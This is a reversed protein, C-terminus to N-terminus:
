KALASLEKLIKVMNPDEASVYGVSCSNIELIGNYEEAFVLYIGDEKKFDVGCNGGNGKFSFFEIEKKTGNKFDRVVSFKTTMEEMGSTGTGKSVSDETPIILMVEKSEDLMKKLDKWEACSCAQAQQFSVM